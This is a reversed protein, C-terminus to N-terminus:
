AIMYKNGQLPLNERSIKTPSRQPLNEYHSYQSYPQKVSPIIKIYSDSYKETSYNHLKHLVLFNAITKTGFIGVGGVRVCM